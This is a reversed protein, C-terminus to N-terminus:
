VRVGASVLSRKLEEELRGLTTERCRGGVERAAQELRLLERHALNPDLFREIEEKLSLLLITARFGASNLLDRLLVHERPDTLRTLHLLLGGRPTEAEGLRLEGRGFLLRMFLLKGERYFMLWPRSGERLHTLATKILLQILHADLYGIKPLLLNLGSGVGFVVDASRRKEYERVYLEWGDARAIRRWDLRRTPQGGGNKVSGRYEEESGTFSNRVHGPSPYAKVTPAAPPVSLRGLNELIIVPIPLPAELERALVGLADKVVLKLKGPGAIGPKVGLARLSLTLREGEGLFGEASGGDLVRLGEGFVAEVEARWRRPTRLEVCVEFRVEEGIPVPNPSVDVSARLAKEPIKRLEPSAVVALLTLLTMLFLPALILAPHPFLILSVAFIIASGQYVRAAQRTLKM